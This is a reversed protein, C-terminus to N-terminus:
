DGALQSFADNDQILKELFNGAETLVSSKSLGGNRIEPVLSHLDEFGRKILNRRKQESLIHNSRKQEETLNERQLKQAATARKKKAAEDAVSPKRDKAIRATKPATDKAPKSKRRRKAPKEDEVEESSPEESQEDAEPSIPLAPPMQKPDLPSEAAVNTDEAIDLVPQSHRMERMTRRTTQDAVEQSYTGPYGGPSNFSGDTGFTYPRKLNPQQMMGDFEPEHLQRTTTAAWNTAKHPDSPGQRMHAPMTVALRKDVFGHQTAPFQKSDQYSSFDANFNSLSSASPRAQFSRSRGNSYSSQSNNFLTSAAQLDDHTNGMYDLPVSSQAYSQNSLYGNHLRAQDPSTTTTTTTTTTVGHVTAPSIYNGWNSFDDASYKNDELLPFPQQDPIQFPDTHSFFDAISQTETDTLLSQGTSDYCTEGEFLGGGFYDPRVILIPRHPLASLKCVVLLRTKTLWTSARLKERRVV